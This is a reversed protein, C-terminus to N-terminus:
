LVREQSLTRYLSGPTLNSATSEDLWRHPDYIFGGPTVARLLQECAGTSAFYVHNSYILLADWSAADPRPCPQLGATRIATRDVVPDFVSVMFGQDHLERAVGLGVSNRTDTTPPTGKFAAGCVLVRVTATDRGAFHRRFSAVTPVQAHDNVLRARGFLTDEPRVPDLSEALIYSDKTLCSGGVGPSAHRLRDRPYDLNVNDVLRRIDVGHIEAVQCLQNSLAQNIDRVANSALKGLEAAELSEMAVCRMGSSEMVDVARRTSRRDLGGVLHRIRRSEDLTGGTTTREPAFALLLQHGALGSCEILLPAVMTRTTGVPVTSRVIVLDGSRLVRGVARAASLLNDLRTKKTAPDVPSDVCIVYADCPQVVDSIRLGPIEFEYGAARLGDLATARRTQTKDIGIVQLGAEAVLAAFKLGVEGLGVVGVQM